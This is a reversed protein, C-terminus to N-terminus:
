VKEINIILNNETYFHYEGLIMKQKRLIIDNPDFQSSFRNQEVTDFEGFYDSLHEDDLEENLEKSLIKRALNYNKARVCYLFTIPSFENFFVKEESLYVAYEDTKKIVNEIMEYKQVLGHGLGDKLDFLIKIDDGIINIEKCTGSFIIQEGDHLFVYKEDKTNACISVFDHGSITQKEADVNIVDGLIYDKLIKNGDKQIIIVSDNEGFINVDYKNSNVKVDKKHTLPTCIIEKKILLVYSDHFKQTLLNRTFLIGNKIMFKYTHVSNNEFCLLTHNGDCFDCQIVDNQAIDTSKGNIILVGDVESEIFVIM